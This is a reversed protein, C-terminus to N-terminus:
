LVIDFIWTFRCFAVTLWVCSILCSPSPMRNICGQACRTPIHVSAAASSYCYAIEEFILFTTTKHGQCGVEPYAGFSVLDSYPSNDTTGNKNFHSVGCSLCLYLIICLPSDNKM